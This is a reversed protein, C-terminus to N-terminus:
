EEELKLSCVEEQPTDSGYIQEPGGADPTELFCGVGIELCSVEGLLECEQNDNIFYGPRTVLNSTSAYAGITACLLIAALILNKAKMISPKLFQNRSQQPNESNGM